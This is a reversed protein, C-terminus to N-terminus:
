NASKECGAIAASLFTAAVLSRRNLDIPVLARLLELAVSVGSPYSM